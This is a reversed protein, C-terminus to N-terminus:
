LFYINGLDSKFVFGGCILGNMFLLLQKRLKLQEWFGM